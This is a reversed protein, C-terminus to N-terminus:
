QVAPSPSHTAAASNEDAASGNSRRGALHQWHISAFPVLDPLYTLRALEIADIRGAVQRALGALEPNEDVGVAILRDAKM